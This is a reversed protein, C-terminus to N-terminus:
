QVDTLRGAEALRREAALLAEVREEGVIHLARGKMKLGRFVQRSNRVVAVPRWGDAQAEPESPHVVHMTDATDATEGPTRFIAFGARALTTATVDDDPDFALVAANGRPAYAERAAAITSRRMPRDTTAEELLCWTHHALRQGDKVSGIFRAGTKPNRLMPVVIGADEDLLEDYIIINVGADAAARLMPDRHDFGRGFQKLKRTGRKKDYTMDM